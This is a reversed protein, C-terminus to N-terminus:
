RWRTRGCRRRNSSWGCAPTSSCSSPTRGPRGSRPMSPTVSATGATRTSPELLDPSRRGNPLRRQEGPRAPRVPARRRAALRERDGAFPTSTCRPGARSWDGTFTGADPGRGPLRVADLGRLDALRPHDSPFLYQRFEGSMSDREDRLPEDTRRDDVGATPRRSDSGVITNRLVGLRDVEVEVVDGPQLLWPPTRAYGVGSPTGTALLDGPELHLHPLHPRPHRRRHLGDPRHHRGPRHHRQGPNAGTARGTPRRGRRRAGAPGAPRLQRREQRPDM